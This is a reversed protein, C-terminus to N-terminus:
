TATQSQMNQQSRDRMNNPQNTTPVRLLIVPLNKVEQRCVDCTRTGKTSFWKIACAEHVLRLDGKCSCEMKLTNGEECVDLCIRCVAEEEPIEEDTEETPVPSVQDSSTVSSVPAKHKEFSISRVIVKNRGPMSLSRPVAPDKNPPEGPVGVPVQAPVVPSLKAAYRSPLSLCRKWYPSTTLGAINPNKATEMPGYSLLSSRESEPHAIVKKKLSLNRLIGRPSLTSGNKFSSTSKLSSKSNHGGVFPIARLPIQISLDLYTGSPQSSQADETSKERVQHDGQSHPPLPSSSDEEVIIAIESQQEAASDQQKMTM